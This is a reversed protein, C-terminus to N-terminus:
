FSIVSSMWHKKKPFSTVLSIVNVAFKKTRDDLEKSNMGLKWEECDIVKLRYIYLRLKAISLEGDIRERGLYFWLSLRM